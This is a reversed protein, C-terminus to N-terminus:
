ECSGPAVLGCFCVILHYFNSDVAKPADTAQDEARDCFLSEEARFDFDDGDVIKDGSVVEGVEDFVVGGLARELSVDGAFLGVGGERFVVDEYDCTLLDLDEADLLAWGSQRPFFEADVDDELAGAEEGFGALGLAVEFGARLFDDDGSGALAVVDGDDHADVVLIVRSVIVVDDGVCGARRIAERGDDVDKELFAEADRFTEHGGDM